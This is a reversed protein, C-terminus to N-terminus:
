ETAPVFSISDRVSTVEAVLGPDAGLPYWYYAVV